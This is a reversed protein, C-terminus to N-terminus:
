AGVGGTGRGSNTMWSRYSPTTSTPPLLPMLRTRTFEAVTETESLANRVLYQVAETIRGGAAVKRVRSYEGDVTVIM